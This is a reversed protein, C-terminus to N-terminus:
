TPFMIPVYLHNTPVLSCGNLIKLICSLCELVGGCLLLVMCFIVHVVNGICMGLTRITEYQGLQSM